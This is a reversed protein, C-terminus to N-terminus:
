GLMALILSLTLLSLLSTILISDRSLGVPVLFHNAYVFTNQATPLAAFLTVALVQASPLQFLYRAAAFALLPQLIVKASVTLGLQPTLFGKTLPVNLSMGLAFLAAPAGAAGLIELTSVLFGPVTLSTATVILGALSALVVPVRFPNRLARRDLMALIVPTAILTQFAVVTVMLSADGLVYLAVPIGLNGSNVYSGAMMAIVREQRPLPSLLYVLAAVVVSSVAFALLPMIPIDKFPLKILTSFVLAPIAVTFAFGGLADQATQNFVGFRACAWGLLTIIWLPAFASIV